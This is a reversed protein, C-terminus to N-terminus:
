GICEIRLVTPTAGFYDNYIVVEKAGEEVLRVAEAFCLASSTPFLGYDAYHNYLLKSDDATAYRAMCESETLSHRPFDITTVQALTAENPEATLRAFM